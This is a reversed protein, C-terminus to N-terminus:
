QFIRVPQRNQVPINRSAAQSNRVPINRSVTPKKSGFKESGDQPAV